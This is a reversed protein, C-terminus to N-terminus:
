STRYADLERWGRHWDYINITGVAFNAHIALLQVRVHGLPVSCVEITTPEEGDDGQVDEKSQPSRSAGNSQGDPPQVHGLPVSCVEITTPEEGDDGQVDTATTSILTGVAPVSLSQQQQKIVKIMLHEPRHNEKSQPSRSAGDSQGDPPKHGEVALSEEATERPQPSVVVTSPKFLLDELEEEKKLLLDELEEIHTAVFHKSLLLEEQDRNITKGAALSVEM